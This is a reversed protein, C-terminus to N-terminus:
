FRLGTTIALRRLRYSITSVSGPCPGILCPYYETSEQQYQKESYGASLFLSGTKFAPVQYGVGFQYYLGGTSQAPNGWGMDSYMTPLWLFHYGGGVYVFPTKNKNFINKQVNLYLPISRIGYYDLGTGLSTIWTKTKVGGLLGLQLASGQEGELLGLHFSGTVVKEQQQALAASIIFSLIVTVLLKNRM